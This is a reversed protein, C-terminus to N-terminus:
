QHTPMGASLIWYCRNQQSDTSPAKWYLHRHAPNDLEWSEMPMTLIGWRWASSRSLNRMRRYPCFRSGFRVSGESAWECSLTEAPSNEALTTWLHGWSRSPGIMLYDELSPSWDPSPQCFHDSRHAKQSCKTLRTMAEVTSELFPYSWKLASESTGRIM